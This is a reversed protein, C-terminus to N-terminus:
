LARRHFTQNIVRSVYRCNARSKNVSQYTASKSNDWLDEYRYQGLASIAYYTRTMAEVIFAFHLKDEYRLIRKRRVEAPMAAIAQRYLETRFIKRHVNCNIEGDYFMQRLRAPTAERIAPSKWCRQIILNAPPLVVQCGFEVIDAERERIKALARPVGSGIFEDDPDLFILFKTQVLLVARIRAMHTGLNRPNRRLIVRCDMSQFRLVAVVSADTSGDDVCLIRLADRPISLRLISSLSRNLYHAKNFIVLIVTLEPKL